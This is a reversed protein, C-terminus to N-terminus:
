LFWTSLKSTDEIAKPRSTHGLVFNLYSLTNPLDAKKFRLEVIGEKRGLEHAITSPRGAMPPDALAEEHLGQEILEAVTKDDYYLAKDYQEKDDIIIFNRFRFALITPSLVAIDKIDEMFQLYCRRKGPSTSTHRRILDNDYWSRFSEYLEPSVFDWVNTQPQEQLYIRAILRQLRLKSTAPLESELSRRVLKGADSPHMRSLIKSFLEEEAVYWTPDAFLFFDGIYALGFPTETNISYRELFAKFSFNPDENMEQSLYHLCAQIFQPSDAEVTLHDLIIDQLDFPRPHRWSESILENYITQLTRQISANPFHMQFYAWAMRYTFWSARRRIMSELLNIEEPYLPVTFCNFVLMLDSPAMQDTFDHLEETSLVALQDLLRNSDDVSIETALEHALPHSERIDLLVSQLSLRPTRHRIKTLPDNEWLNAAQPGPSSQLNSFVM